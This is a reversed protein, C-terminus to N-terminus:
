ASSNWNCAAPYRYSRFDFTMTLNLKPIVVADVAEALAPHGRVGHLVVQGDVAVEHHFVLANARCSRCSRPM